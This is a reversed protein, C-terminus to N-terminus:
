SIKEHIKDVITCLRVYTKLMRYDVSSIKKDTWYCILKKAKTIM